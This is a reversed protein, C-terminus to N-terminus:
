ETGGLRGSFRPADGPTQLKVVSGFVATPEIHCLDFETDQGPSDQAPADGIFLGESLLDLAQLKLAILVPSGDIPTEGSLISSDFEVM